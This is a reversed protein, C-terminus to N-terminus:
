LVFEPFKPFSDFKTVYYDAIVIGAGRCFRAHTEVFLDFSFCLRIPNETKNNPTPHVLRTEQLLNNSKVVSEGVGDLVVVANTWEPTAYSRM